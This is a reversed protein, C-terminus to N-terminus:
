SKENIEEIKFSNKDRTKFMTSEHIAINYVSADM